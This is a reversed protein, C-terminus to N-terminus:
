RTPQAYPNVITWEKLARWVFADIEKWHALHKPSVRWTIYLGGYEPTYYYAFMSPYPLWSDKNFPPLHIKLFVPHGYAGVGICSKRDGTEVVGPQNYPRTLSTYCTLGHVKGFVKSSGEAVYKKMRAEVNPPYFGPADPLEEGLGRYEIRIGAVWDPDNPNLIGNATDPTWGVFDPMFFAFGVDPEEVLDDLRQAAFRHKLKKDQSQWFWGYQAPIEFVLGNPLKRYISKGTWTKAFESNPDLVQGPKLRLESTLQPRRTFPAPLQAMNHVEAFTPGSPTKQAAPKNPECACLTLAAFLCLVMGWLRDTALNQRLLDSSMPFGRFLWGDFYIM